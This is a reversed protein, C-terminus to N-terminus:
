DPGAGARPTVYGVPPVPANLVSCPVDVGWHPRITLQAIPGIGAACRIRAADVETRWDPGPRATALPQGFLMGYCMLGTSLLAFVPQRLQVARGHFTSLSGALAGALLITATVIYRSNGSLDTVPHALLGASNRWAAALLAADVVLVALVLYRASGGARLAPWCIVVIIGLAILLLATQSTHGVIQGALDRGTAFPVVVRAAVIAPIQHWAYSTRHTHSASTVVILQMTAAAAFAIAVVRHRGLGPSGARLTVARLLVVPAVALTLPDSGVAAIVVVAAIAAGARSMPRWLAAWFAGAILYWHLNAVNDYTEGAPVLIVAGAAVLRYVPAPLQTSSARYVFVAILARVLIAAGTFVIPVASIPVLTAVGAILRPALHMYGGYPRFIVGPWAQTVADRYFITGDEAWMADWIPRGVPIAALFAFCAATAASYGM